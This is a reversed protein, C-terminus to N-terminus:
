MGFKHQTSDAKVYFGLGATELNEIMEETHRYSLLLVPIVANDSLYM